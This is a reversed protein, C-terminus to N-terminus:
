GSRARVAWGGGGPSCCVKAGVQVADGPRIDLALELSNGSIDELSVDAGARLALDAEARPHLRLSAMEDPPAMRLTKDEGLWLVRPLSMMM